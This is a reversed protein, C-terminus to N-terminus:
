HKQERQPTQRRHFRLFKSYMYFHTQPSVISGRSFYCFYFISIEDKEGRRNQYSNPGLRKTGFFDRISPGMFVAHMLNVKTIGLCANAEHVRVGQWLCPGFCTARLSGTHGKGPQCWLIFIKIVGIFRFMLARSHRVTTELWKAVSVTRRVTPTWRLNKMDPFLTASHGRREDAVRLMQQIVM